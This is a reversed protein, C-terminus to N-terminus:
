ITSWWVMQVTNLGMVGLLDRCHRNHSLIIRKYNFLSNGRSLNEARKTFGVEIQVVMLWRAACPKCKGWPLKCSVDLASSISHQLLIKNFRLYLTGIVPNYNKTMRLIDIVNTNKYFYNRIKYTNGKHKVRAWFGRGKRVLLTKFYYCYHM